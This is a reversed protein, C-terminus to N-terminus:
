LLRTELKEKLEAFLGAYVKSGSMREELWCILYNISVMFSEEKPNPKKDSRGIGTCLSSKIWRIRIDNSKKKNGKRPEYEKNIGSIIFIDCIFIKFYYYHKGENWYVKIM